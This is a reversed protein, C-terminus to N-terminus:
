AKTGTGRKAEYLDMLRRVTAPGHGAYHNNVYVLTSVGRDMMRGLFGAWRQLREGQDVVEKEWTTTLQEIAKRDGLLRVYTFDTTVPDLKKEVEDAHPMWAHDVMVLAAGHRAVVDRLAQSTIWSRNRVEVGYRFGEKPLDRLFTDLKEIFPGVSPFAQRNFYPFQLVLPGLRPGLRTMVELFADRVEYTSDPELVSRGDPKAGRGAHVVDRPFKSSLLFTKPTKARWGDVTRASPVRYYTTDVEVTDFRQAYTGLFAPPPTGLPYFPGM